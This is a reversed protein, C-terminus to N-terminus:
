AITAVHWVCELLWVDISNIMVHKISIEQYMNKLILTLRETGISVYLCCRNVINKICKPMAWIMVYAAAIIVM